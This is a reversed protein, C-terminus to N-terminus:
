QRLLRASEYLFIYDHRAVARRRARAHKVTAGLPTTMGIAAAVLDSLSAGVAGIIGLVPGAYSAPDAIVDDFFVTRLSAERTLEELEEIAPVVETRM